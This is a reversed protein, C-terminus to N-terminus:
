RTPAAPPPPWPTGAITATGNGNDTFTVGAPLTGDAAAGAVTRFGTTTVLLQWGCGRRVNDLGCEHHRSGREREVHFVAGRTLRHWEVRQVDRIPAAPAAAPTGALTATGNGNNTFTM